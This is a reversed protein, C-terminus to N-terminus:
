KKSKKKGGSGNPNKLGKPKEAIEFVLKSKEIGDFPILLEEDDLQVRIGESSVSNLMETFTKASKWKKGEVGFTELAKATKVWIKKGAVKEFHWPLRLTRDLGPTSVELNYAGGPVPDNEETLENLGRAVNTCNDISPAGDAKDIYIRLVRGSFEIDYLICAEQQILPEALERFKQIADTSSLRKLDKHGLFVFTPQRWGM